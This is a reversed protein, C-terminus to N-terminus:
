RLAPAIRELVRRLQRVSLPKELEADAWAAFHPEIKEARAKWSKLCKNKARVAEDFRLIADECASRSDTLRDDRMAKAGDRGARVGASAAIDAGNAVMIAVRTFLAGITMARLLASEIYGGTAAARLEAILQILTLLERRFDPRGEVRRDQGDYQPCVKDSGRDYRLDSKGPDPRWNPGVELGLRDAFGSTQSWAYSRLMERAIEEIALM